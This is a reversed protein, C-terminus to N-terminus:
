RSSLPIHQLDRAYYGCSDMQRGYDRRGQQATLDIVHDQIEHDPVWHSRITAIIPNYLATEVIRHPVAVPVAISVVRQVSGGRGRGKLLVGPKYFGIESIGIVIMMGDLTKACRDAGL